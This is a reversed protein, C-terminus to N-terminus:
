NMNQLKYHTEPQQVYMYDTSRLKCTTTLSMLDYSMGNVYNQLEWKSCFSTVLVKNSMHVQLFTGPRTRSQFIDFNCSRYASLKTKCAHVVDIFCCSHPSSMSIPLLALSKYNVKYVKCTFHVYCSIRTVHKNLSKPPQM